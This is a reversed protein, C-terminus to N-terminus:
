GRAVRRARRLAAIAVIGALPGLSLAPFAWRTAPGGAAAVLQIAAMTLLFGIATQLTLATGVAHRPALETVLASFQASDAIVAIGWILIVALVLPLPGGFVVSSAIAASASTAMAVMVVPERGRRDAAVGGWLCGVLGVGISVFALLAVTRPSVGAGLSASWYTAVFGWFAYLEWMHGLYGLTALRVERVRVVEAVLRWSFPRRPFAHPGDRYGVAVLGAAGLAALSTSGIVADVGLGGLAEVLYPLAKGVTLAGVVVGIAFGRRSAFWTAAMKMAPPYVGAFFLGLFFRTVLAGRYGTVLFLGGNAIAAGTAAAAVYWRSPVIDPLNLVAAVLTGAVFGLQVTSTLWAVQVGTLQWRVALEPGVAGGAFWGAMGLLEVASLLGLIVFPRVAQGGGAQDHNSVGDTV